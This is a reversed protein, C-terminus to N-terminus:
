LIKDETLETRLQELFVKLFATRNKVMTKARETHMREEVILLRKYFLDIGSRFDVAGKDSLPDSKAYFPTNMVGCSSFTRMISIAGTVELHDADQLVMSELSSPKINKAFSCERICAVVKDIKEVPYGKIKKLIISTIKASKDTEFYSKKSNKKYVVIDHFLAAPILIDLDAKVEEGIIKTLNLVRTVHEYDHSPDSKTQMKKATSVIKKEVKKQM